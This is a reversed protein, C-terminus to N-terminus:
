KSNKFVLDYSLLVTGIATVGAAGGVISGTVIILLNRDKGYVTGSEYPFPKNLQVTDVISVVSREAAITNNIETTSDYLCTFRKPDVISGTSYFTGTAFMTDTLTYASFNASTTQTNAYGIWVRLLIGSANATADAYNIRFKIANLYIEDGTRGNNSTGLAILSTPCHVYADNHIMNQSITGDVGLLHQATEMDRIKTVLNNRKGVRPRKKYSQYASGAGARASQISGSRGRSYGGVGAAIAGKFYNYKQKYSGYPLSPPSYM